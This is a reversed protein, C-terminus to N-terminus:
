LLEQALRGGSFVSLCESGEQLGHLPSKLANGLVHHLPLLQVAVLSHTLSRLSTKGRGGYEGGFSLGEVLVLDKSSFGSQSSHTFRDIFHAHNIRGRWVM